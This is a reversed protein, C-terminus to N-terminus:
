FTLANEATTRARLAKLYQLISNESYKGPVGKQPAFYLIRSFIYHVYDAIVLLYEFVTLM